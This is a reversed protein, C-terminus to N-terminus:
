IARPCPYSPLFQIDRAPLTDVRFSPPGSLLPGGPCLEKQGSASKAANLLKGAFEASAAAGKAVAAKEEQGFLTEYDGAADAMAWSSLCLVGIGVVELAVTSKYVRISGKMGGTGIAEAVYYGGVLFGVQERM